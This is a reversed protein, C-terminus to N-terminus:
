AASRGLRRALGELAAEMGIRHTPAWDLYERIARGVFDIRREPARDVVLVGDRVVRHHLVPGARGLVVLDVRGGPAAHELAASAISLARRERETVDGEHALLIAVDLDSDSREEGRALSGFVWAAAVFDCGALADRVAEVVAERM